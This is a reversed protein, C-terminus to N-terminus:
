AFTKFCICTGTLFPMPFYYNVTLSLIIHSPDYYLFKDYFLTKIFNKFIVTGVKKGTTQLDFNFKLIYYDQFKQYDGSSYDASFTLALNTYPKFQFNGALM